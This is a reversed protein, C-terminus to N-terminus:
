AALFQDRGVGCIPCIEPPYEGEANYGCMQCVWNPKLYEDPEAPPALVEVVAEVEASERLSSSLV